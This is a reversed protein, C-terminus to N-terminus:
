VLGDECHLSGFGFFTKLAKQHSSFGCSHCLTRLCRGVMDVRLGFPSLRLLIFQYAIYVFKGVFEM